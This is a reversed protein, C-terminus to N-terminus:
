SAHDQAADREALLTIRMRVARMSKLTDVLDRIFSLLAIFETRQDQSLTDRLSHRLLEFRIFNRAARAHRETYIAYPPDMRQCFEEDNELRSGTPTSIELRAYNSPTM